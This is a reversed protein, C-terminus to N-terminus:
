DQLEIRKAGSVDIGTTGYVMGNTAWPIAIARLGYLCKIDAKYTVDHCRTKHFLIHQRCNTKQM